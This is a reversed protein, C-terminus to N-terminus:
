MRGFGSRARLDRDDSRRTEEADSRVPEGHEDWTCTGDACQIGLELFKAYRTDYDMDGGELLALQLLTKSLGM